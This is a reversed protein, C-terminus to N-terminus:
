ADPLPSPSDDMGLQSLVLALLEESGEPWNMLPMYGRVTDLTQAVAVTIPSFRPTSLFAAATARDQNAFVHLCWQLTAVVEADLISESRDFTM